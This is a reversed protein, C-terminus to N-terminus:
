LDFIFFNLLILTNDIQECIKFFDMLYVIKKQLNYINM